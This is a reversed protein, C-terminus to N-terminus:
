YPFRKLVFGTVSEFNHTYRNASKTLHWINTPDNGYIVTEVKAESPNTFPIFGIISNNLNEAKLRVDSDLINGSDSFALLLANLDSYLHYAARDAQRQLPTLLEEQREKIIDFVKLLGATDFSTYMRDIEVPHMISDDYHDLVFKSFELKNYDSMSTLTSIATALILDKAASLFDSTFDLHNKMSAAQQFQDACVAYM